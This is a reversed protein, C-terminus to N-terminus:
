LVVFQQCARVNIRVVNCHWVNGVGVNNHGGRLGAFVYVAFLRQGHIHGLPLPHNGGHFFGADSPLHGEVEAIERGYRSGM